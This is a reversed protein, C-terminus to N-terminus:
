QPSHILISGSSGFHIRRPSGRRSTPSRCSRSSQLRRYAANAWAKTAFVISGAYYGSLETVIERLRQDRAILQGEAWLAIKPFPEAAIPLGPGSYKCGSERSSGEGRTITEM